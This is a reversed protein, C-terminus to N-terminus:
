IKLSRRAPPTSNCISLAMLSGCALITGQSKQPEPIPLFLGGGEGAPPGPAGRNSLLRNSLYLTYGPLEKGGQSLVPIFKLSSILGELPM